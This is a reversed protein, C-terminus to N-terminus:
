KEIGAGYEYVMRGGNHGTLSVFTVVGLLFFLFVIRSYRPLENKIFWLVPLSLLSIWMTWLGLTRHLNLVPHGLNLREEEWLGTRVVIPTLLAAFVYINLATKHLSEKRFILSAIEFGIATTFLAIPYHVLKPHLPIFYDFM